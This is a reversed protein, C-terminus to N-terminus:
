AGHNADETYETTFTDIWAVQGGTVNLLKGGALALPEFGTPAFGFLRRRIAKRLPYLDPEGRNGAREVCVVGLTLSVTQLAPGAGRVDATAQEQLPVVFLCPTRNLPQNDLDSLALLGRVDKWETQEERLRQIIGTVADM